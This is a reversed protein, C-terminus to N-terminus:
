RDYQSEILDDPCYTMTPIPPMVIREVPDLNTEPLLYLRDEGGDSFTERAEQRAFCFKTIGAKEIVALVLAAEGYAADPHPDFIVLPEIPEGMGEQLADYLSWQDMTQGDLTVRGDASIGVRKAVEGPLREFEFPMTTPLDFTIAHTRLSADIWVVMGVFLATLGAVVDYRPQRLPEGHDHPLHLWRKRRLRSPM